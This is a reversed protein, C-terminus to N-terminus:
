LSSVFIEAGKPLHRVNEGPSYERLVKGSREEINLESNDQSEAQVTFQESSVSEGKNKKYHKM